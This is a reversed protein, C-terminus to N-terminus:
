YLEEELELNQEPLKGYKKIFQQLLESERMTFMRNEEYVFYRAKPNTSLQDYLEKRLNTTGKIYIVMKNEDLLQYAGETEPVSTVNAMELRLWKEPPQPPQSIQLRLDCRLCRRAEEVAMKEDFGLDVQAFNGQRKEIPLKPMEIRRKHAFGEERGLWPNPKEPAVLEEDINGGGGLYRDIAKAAKKASAMAEVISSPGNVIDGCAFVGPLSTELTNTDAKILNRTVEIKEPLFSLDSSEGIAVIVTDAELIFESDEIPEPQRRGSEDPEGLRTQVCEIGAVHGNEDLISKPTALFHIKVGEREAEEIEWPYAPMEEISRRYLVTVEKAGCRLATRAADFAVNGGGIVVVKGVVSVGRRLRVERLFDLAGLVGDLDSGKVNLTKSIPLGTAILVADYDEDMLHKLNPSKGVQTGARVEVGLKIIEDLDRQLIEEPLRFEQIGYRMMGGLKPMSEFITVFHGLKALYYAATLGAPGSGIIAVRKGTPSAIKTDAKRIRSVYDIAFRKLACISVSENVEGRRCVNECPRACAHGLVSPLPAKEKVVAVAEAYRGQAILHIYKPVNIGLPCAYKCPILSIEREGVIVEKDMLAGTPCVEVCAGCFKCGSDSLTPAITGVLIDNNIYVFGLAEVGRLNRCARVCRTCGICLNYNRIFLPEDEVVPLNAPLYHPTDERIGIYDAVRELECNGIKPCCREAVPVDVPCPERACGEKQTCILCAHPHRALIFILKEKRAEIVRETDTYVRMGDVVPTDCALVLESEGDVEVICLNCGEFGKEPAVGVKREGGQYITGSAKAERSPSLDPHYCLSPIYIDIQKAAELITMDEFAEVNTDNIFLTITGM